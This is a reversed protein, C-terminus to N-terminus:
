EIKRITKKCKITIRRKVDISIVTADFLRSVCIIVSASGVDTGM